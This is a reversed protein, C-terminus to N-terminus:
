KEGIVTKGAIRRGTERKEDRSPRREFSFDRGAGSRFRAAATKTM